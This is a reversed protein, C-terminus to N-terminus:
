GLLDLLTQSATGSLAHDEAASLHRRWARDAGESDGAVILEVIREHERFGAHMAATGKTSGALAVAQRVTSREIIQRLMGSLVTLTQNGALEVILAHFENLM